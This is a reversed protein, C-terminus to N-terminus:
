IRTPPDLPTSVRDIVLGCRRHQEEAPMGAYESFSSWPWDEPQRVLGARVPNLHLYEITEHYEKVTRLARDFFRAQWLEGSAVRRRNIAMMSSQKSSKVVLSITVPYQPACVAHWHDPLFVWATLYFPHRRRARNFARALLRFDPDTLKLRRRLLRVTIFFYRDSLFPRRLRSM